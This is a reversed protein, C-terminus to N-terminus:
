WTGAELGAEELLQEEERVYEQAHLSPYRAFECRYGHRNDVNMVAEARIALRERRELNSTHADTM